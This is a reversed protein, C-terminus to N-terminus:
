GRLHEYAGSRYAELVEAVAEDGSAAGRAVKRVAALGVDTPELGECSLSGLVEAIIEGERM